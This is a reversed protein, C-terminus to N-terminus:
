EVLELIAVESKIKDLAMKLLEQDKPHIPSVEGEFVFLNGSVILITQGAKKNVRAIEAIVLTQLADYTTSGDIALEIADAWKNFQQVTFSDWVVGVKVVAGLMREAACPNSIKECILSPQDPQVDECVTCPMQWVPAVGFNGNACGFLVLIPVVMWISYRIKM